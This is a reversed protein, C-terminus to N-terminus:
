PSDRYRYTMGDYASWSSCGRFSLGFWSFKLVVRWVSTSPGLDALLNEVLMMDEADKKKHSIKFYSTFESM